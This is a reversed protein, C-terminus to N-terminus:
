DQEGLDLRMRQVAERVAKIIRNRIQHVNNATTGFEEAVTKASCQDLVYRKFIEITRGSFAPDKAVRRLAAEQLSEQWKQHAEEGPLSVSEDALKEALPRAGSDEQAELSDEKRRRARKVAKLYKRHAITLVFNRFKKKPDRQFSPLIRCLDVMTEQAVDQADQDPLGFKHAYGQVVPAYQTCFVMWADGDDPDGCRALLSDRTTRM